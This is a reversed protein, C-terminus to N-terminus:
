RRRAGSPRRGRGGKWTLAAPLATGSSEKEAEGERASSTHIYGHIDERKGNATRCLLLARLDRRIGEGDGEDGEADRRLETEIMAPPVGGQGVGKQHSHARGAPGTPSALPAGLGAALRLRPRQRPRDLHRRHHHDRDGGRPVGDGAGAVRMLERSSAVARASRGVSIGGGASGLIIAHNGLSIKKKKSTLSKGAACLRRCCLHGQDKHNFDREHRDRQM